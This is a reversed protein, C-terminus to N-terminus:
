NRGHVAQGEIQPRRMAPHHRRDDSADGFKLAFQDLLADAGANAAAFARPL